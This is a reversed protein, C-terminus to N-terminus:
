LDSRARKLLNVYFCYNSFSVDQPVQHDVGPIYGGEGVLPRVKSEVEKTVAERGASLAQKSINGIMRLNKGYKKRLSVADTGASVELHVIGNVGSELLPTILPEIDGDSDVIIIDVGNKRLMSTVKKYQPQIFERFLRPSIHPGNKYAMDEFSTAFDIGVHEVVKELVATVFNAWFDMIKEILGPARLFTILLRETGLLNRATAFFGPFEVKLPFKRRNYYEIMDDTLNSPLRRVDYPDFRPKMEESDSSDKVPHEIYQPMGTVRGKVFRKKVGAADLVIRYREDEAVVKPGYRPIPGFDIPITSPDVDVHGSLSYSLPIETKWPTPTLGRDFGFYTELDVGVPLGEAYWRQLSEPWYGLFECLPPRDVKEFHMTRLFRERVDM